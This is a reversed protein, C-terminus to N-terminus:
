SAPPPPNPTGSSSKEQKGSSDEKPKYTMVGTDTLEKLAAAVKDEPLKLKNTWDKQTASLAPNDDKSNASNMSPMAGDPNQFNKILDEGKVASKDAEQIGTVLYAQELMTELRDIPANVVSIGYTALQNAVKARIDKKQDATLNSYGLKKEVSSIIENRKTRDLGDIRADPKSEEKKEETKKEEKKEEKKEQSKEGPKRFGHVSVYDAEEKVKAKLEPNQFILGTLTVADEIIGKNDEQTKKLTAIAENTAKVQEQLSAILKKTEEDM